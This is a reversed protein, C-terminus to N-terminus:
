LLTVTGKFRHLVGQFNVSIGENELKKLDELLPSLISNYGYKSLFLAPQHYNTDLKRFCFASIEHTHTKNGMQNVINFDDHYLCIELVHERSNLFKNSKFALSDRFAKIVGNQSTEANHWFCFMKM